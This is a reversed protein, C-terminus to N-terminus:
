NKKKKGPLTAEVVEHEKVTLGIKLTGESKKSVLAKIAVDYTLAVSDGSAKDVARFKTKTTVKYTKVSEGEKVTLEKSEQDYKVLTVDSALVSGSLFLLCLIPLLKRM